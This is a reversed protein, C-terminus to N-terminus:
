SASIAIRRPKAKEAKPLELELVGNKMRASIRETDITNALTFRRSYNGVNYETYVPALNEYDKVEVQGEISLVGENVHVEISQEDVGPMDARLWLSDATEYIDVEPVYTRGPRTPENDTMEQKKYTSLKKDTM